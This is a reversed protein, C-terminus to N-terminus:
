RREPTRAPEAPPHEPRRPRSPYAVGIRAPERLRVPSPDAGPLPLPAREGPPSPRVDPGSPDDESRDDRPWWDRWSQGDERDIMAWILLVAGIVHVVFTLTLAVIEAEFGVM